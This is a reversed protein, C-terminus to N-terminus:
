KWKGVHTDGMITAQQRYDKLNYWDQRRGNVSQRRIHDTKVAGYFSRKFVPPVHVADRECSEPGMGRHRDPKNWYFLDAMGTEFLQAMYKRGQHGEVRDLDTIIGMAYRLGNNPLKEPNNLPYKYKYIYLKYKNIFRKKM